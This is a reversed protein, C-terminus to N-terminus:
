RSEPLAEIQPTSRADVPSLVAKRLQRRYLFFFFVNGVIFPPTFVSGFLLGMISLVMGKGAATLIGEELVTMSYGLLFSGSFPIMVSCFLGLIVVAWWRSDPRLRRFGWLLVLLSMISYSPATFLFSEMDQHSMIALIANGLALNAIIAVLIVPHRLSM